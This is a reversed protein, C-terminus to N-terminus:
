ILKNKPGFIEYRIPEHISNFPTHSGERVFTIRILLKEDFAFHVNDKNYLRFIKELLAREMVEVELDCLMGVM